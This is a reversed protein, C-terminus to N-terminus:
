EPLDLNYNEGLLNRSEDPAPRSREPFDGPLSSILASQAQPSLISGSGDPQDPHCEEPQQMEHAPSGHATASIAPRKMEAARLEWRLIALGTRGLAERLGNMDFSEVWITQLPDIPEKPVTDSAPGYMKQVKTRAKIEDESRPVSVSVIYIPLHDCDRAEKIVVLYKEARTRLTVAFRIKHEQAWDPAHEIDSFFDQLYHEWVFSPAADKPTLHALWELVIERPSTKKAVAKSKPANSFAGLLKALDANDVACM